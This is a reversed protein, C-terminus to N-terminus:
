QEAPAARYGDTGLAAVIEGFYMRHYDNRYAAHIYDALFHTPECDDFYIKRCELVLEAEEFSPSAVQTSATPTFGSQNIKDMQRGSHTGLADLMPRYKAEFVSLTFNDHREMFQFTYRQPRVVVMAFPKGWMVGLSGWSVTMCNFRRSPFDGCALLAWNVDWLGFPRCALENTPIPQRSM